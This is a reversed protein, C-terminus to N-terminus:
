RALDWVWAASQVSPPGLVSELWAEIVAPKRAVGSTNPGRAFPVVVMTVGWGRLASLVAERQAPSAAADLHRVPYTSAVLKIVKYGPEEKGQRADIWEPGTGGVVAYHMGYIAQVGLLDASTNFFPFGLVVEGSPLTAAHQQYWTPVWM